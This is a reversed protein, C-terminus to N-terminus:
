FASRSAPAHAQRRAPPSARRGQILSFYGAVLGEDSEKRSKGGKQTIPAQGKKQGM